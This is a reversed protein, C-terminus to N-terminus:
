IWIVNEQIKLRMNRSIMLSVENLEKVRSSDWVKIVETFYSKHVALQTNELNAIECLLTVRKDQLKENVQKAEKEDQTIRDFDAKLKIIIENFQNLTPQAADESKLTYRIYSSVADLTELL